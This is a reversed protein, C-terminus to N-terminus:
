AFLIVTCRQCQRCLQIILDCHCTKQIAVANRRNVICIGIRIRSFSCPTLIGTNSCYFRAIRNDASIMVAIIIGDAIDASSQFDCLDIDRDTNFRVAPYAIDIVTGNLLCTEGISGLTDIIVNDDAMFAILICITISDPISYLTLCCIVFACRTKMIVELSLFIGSVVCIIYTQSQCIERSIRVVTDTQKDTPSTQCDLRLRNCDCGTGTGLCIVATRQGVRFCRDCTNNFTFGVTNLGCSGYSIRSASRVAVANCPSGVSAICLLTVVTDCLIESSECNIIRCKLYCNLINFFVIVTGLLCATREDRM